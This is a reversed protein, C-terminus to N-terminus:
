ALLLTAREVPQSEPESQVLAVSVVDEAAPEGDRGRAGRVALRAQRALTSPSLRLGTQAAVSHALARLVESEPDDFAALLAAGVARAALYADLAGQRVAERSLLWLLTSIELREDEDRWDLLNVRFVLAGALDDGNRAINLAYLRLEWGNTLMAWNVGSVKARGLLPKADADTLQHSARFSEVLVAPAGGALLVYGRRAHVAPLPQQDMRRYGLLTLLPGVAKTRTRDVDWDKAAETAVALRQCLKRLGVDLRAIARDQRSSHVFSVPAVGEPLPVIFPPPPLQTPQRVTSSAARVRDRLTHRYIRRVRPRLVRAAQEPRPRGRLWFRGDECSIPADADAAMRRYLVSSMSRDPTRGRPHIFGQAVAISTLEGVTLPRDAFGLIAAAAQFYTM